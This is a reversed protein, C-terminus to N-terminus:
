APQRIIVRPPLVTVNEIAGKRPRNTLTGLRVVTGIGNPRTKTGGLLSTGGLIETLDITPSASKAAITGGLINTTTMGGTAIEIKNILAHVRNTGTVVPRSSTPKRPFGFSNALHIPLLLSFIRAAEMIVRLIRPKLRLRDEIPSLM